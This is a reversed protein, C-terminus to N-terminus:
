RQQEMWWLAPQLDPRTAITEEGEEWVSFEPCSSSAPLTTEAVKTGDMRRATLTWDRGVAQLRIDEGSSTTYACQGFPRREESVDVVVVLDVDALTEGPGTVTFQGVPDVWLRTDVPRAVGLPHEEDLGEFMEKAADQTLSGQLLGEIVSDGVRVSIHADLEGLAAFFQGDVTSVPTALLQPRLDIRLTGDSHEGGGVVAGPPLALPISLWGGPVHCGTSMGFDGHVMVGMGGGCDGLKVIDAGRVTFVTSTSEGGAELQLKHDGPGFDALPRVMSFSGDRVAVPEGNLTVPGEVDLATGRITVEGEYVDASIQLFPETCALLSFLLM